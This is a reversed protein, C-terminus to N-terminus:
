KEKAPYDPCSGDPTNCSIGSSCLAEGNTTNQLADAYRPALLMTPQPTLAFTVPRQKFTAVGALALCLVAIIVNKAM